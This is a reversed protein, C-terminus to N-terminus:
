DVGCVLVCVLFHLHSTIKSFFCVHESQKVITQKIGQEEVQGIRVLVYRM